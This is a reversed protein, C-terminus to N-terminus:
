FHSSVVAHESVKIIKISTVLNLNSFISNTLDLFLHSTIINNPMKATVKVNSVLISNAVIINVRERRWLMICTCKALIVFILIVKIYAVFLM